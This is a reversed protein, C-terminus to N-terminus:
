KRRHKEPQINYVYDPIQPALSLIKDVLKKLEGTLLEQLEQIEMIAFIGQSFQSRKQNSKSCFTLINLFFNFIIM